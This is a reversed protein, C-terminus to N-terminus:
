NKIINKKFHHISEKQVTYLKAPRFAGEKIFDDTDQLLNSEIIQKRFSSKDLDAGLLIEYVKQLQPLTFKEELLFVPLTSYNVKNTLREIAKEIIDNHHPFGLYYDSLESVKVWKTNEKILEQYNVLAIYAVSVTWSRPDIHSGGVSILQEKYNIGVGTKEELVRDVAEDLSYDLGQNIVGGPLAWTGKHPEKDRELLLVSLEDDVLTFVVPDVSVVQTSVNLEKNM